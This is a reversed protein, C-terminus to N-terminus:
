ASAAPKASASRAPWFAESRRLANERALLENTARQGRLVLACTVGIALLGVLLRGSAAESFADSHTQAYSLFTLLLCAGTVLLVGRRAWIGGSLLVVIVYMVAIAMDLPSLTDIAYILFMLAILLASMWPTRRVRFM